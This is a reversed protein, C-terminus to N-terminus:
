VKCRQGAIPQLGQLSVAGALVTDPDVVLIADTENPLYFVRMVHFYHVIVSSRVRSADLM